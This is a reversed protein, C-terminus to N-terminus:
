GARAPLKQLSLGAQRLIENRDVRSLGPLSAEMQAIAEAATKRVARTLPARTLELLYYHGPWAPGQFPIRWEFQDNVGVIIWGEGAPLPRRPTPLASVVAAEIANILSLIFWSRLLERGNATAFAPYMNLAADIRRDTAGNAFLRPVAVLRHLSVDFTPLEHAHVLLSLRGLHSDVHQQVAAVVTSSRATAKLESLLRRQAARRRGFLSFRTNRIIPQLVSQGDPSQCWAAFAARDIKGTYRVRGRWFQVARKM